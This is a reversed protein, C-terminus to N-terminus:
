NGYARGRKVMRDHHGKIADPDFGKVKERIPVIHTKYLSKWLFEPLPRFSNESVKDWKARLSNVCFRFTSMDDMANFNTVLNDFDRKMDEIFNNYPFNKTNELNYKGLYETVEMYRVEM